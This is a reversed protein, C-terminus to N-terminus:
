KIIIQIPKRNSKALESESKLKLDMSLRYEVNLGGVETKQRTQVIVTRIPGDFWYM